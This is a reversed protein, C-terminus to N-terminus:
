PVGDTSGYLNREGSQGPETDHMGRAFAPLTRDSDDRYGQKRTRSISASWPAASTASDGENEIEDALNAYQEARQSHKISLKGM